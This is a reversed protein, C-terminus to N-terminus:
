RFSLDIKSVQSAHKKRIKGLVLSEFFYSNSLAMFSIIHHMMSFQMVAHKQSLPTDPSPTPHFNPCRGHPTILPRSTQM